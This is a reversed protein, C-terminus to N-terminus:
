KQWPRGLSRKRTLFEEMREPNRSMKYWAAKFQRQCDALSTGKGSTPFDQRPLVTDIGWAWFQASGVGNQIGISGIEVDDYIVRYNNTAHPHGEVKRLFLRSSM